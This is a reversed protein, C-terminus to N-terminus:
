CNTAYSCSFQSAAGCGSCPEGQNHQVRIARDDWLEVMDSDKRNTIPLAPLGHDKLWETIRYRESPSDARATFIRVKRGDDLWGRVRDIMGPVPKGLPAGTRGSSKALTGDFDVGIWKAM